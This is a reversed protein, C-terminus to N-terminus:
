LQNLNNTEVLYDRLLVYNIYMHHLLPFITLNKKGEEAKRYPLRVSVYPGKFMKEDSNLLFDKLHESLSDDQFSFTTDLYDLVTRKVESALISPIM